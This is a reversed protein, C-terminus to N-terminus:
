LQKENVLKNREIVFDLNYIKEIMVDISFHKYNGYCM